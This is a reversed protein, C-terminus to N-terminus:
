SPQCESCGSNDRSGHVRGVELSQEPVARLEPDAEGARLLERRVAQRLDEEDALLKDGTPGARQDQPVVDEVAVTKRAVQTARHFVRLGAAPRPDEAAVNVARLTKAHHLEVLVVVRDGDLPLRLM